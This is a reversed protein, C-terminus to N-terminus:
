ETEGTYCRITKRYNNVIDRRRYYNSNSLECQNPKVLFDIGTNPNYQQVYVCYRLNNTYSKAPLWGITVSNCDDPKSYQRISLDNPMDPMPFIKPRVTAM